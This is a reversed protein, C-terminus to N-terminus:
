AADILPTLAFYTRPIDVRMITRRHALDDLATAVASQPYDVQAAVTIADGRTIRQLASWVASEVATAHGILHPGDALEAVMTLGQRELVADLTDQHRDDVGRAVFYADAPRDQRQFHQLLKAVTEEACSYDLVVVESFDLVTLCLAGLDRIQSEIGVRLAQGTPRTVLHSYLTAVSRKVLDSLDFRLPVVPGIENM